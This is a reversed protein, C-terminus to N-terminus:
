FFTWLLSSPYEEWSSHLGLAIMCSLLVVEQLLLNTCCQCHWSQSCIWLFTIRQTLISVYWFSGTGGPFDTRPLKPLFHVRTELYLDWIQDWEQVYLLDICHGLKHLARPDLCRQLELVRGPDLCFEWLARWTLVISVMMRPLMHACSLPFSIATVSSLCSIAALAQSCGGEQNNSQAWPLSLAASLHGIGQSFKSSKRHCGVAEWGYSVPWM